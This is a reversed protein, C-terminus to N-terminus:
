DISGADTWVVAREPGIWRRRDIGITSNYRVVQVTYKRKWGPLYYWSSTRGPQITTWPRIYGIGGYVLVNIAHRGANRINMGTHRGRIYALTGPNKVTFYTNYEILYKSKCAAFGSVGFVSMLLTVLLVVSIVRFIKHIM